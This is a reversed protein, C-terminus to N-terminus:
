HLVSRRVNYVIAGKNSAALIKGRPLIVKSTFSISITVTRPEQTEAHLVTIADGSNAAHIVKHGQHPSILFDRHRSRHSIPSPPDILPNNFLLHLARFCPLLLRQHRCHRVCSCTHISLPNFVISPRVQSDACPAYANIASSLHYKDVPKSKGRFQFLAQLLQFNFM